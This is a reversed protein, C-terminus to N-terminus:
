FQQSVDNNAAQNQHLHNYLSNNVPLWILINILDQLTIQIYNGWKIPSAFVNVRAISFSLDQHQIHLSELNDGAEPDYHTCRTRRCHLTYLECAASLIYFLFM